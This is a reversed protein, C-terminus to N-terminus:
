LDRLDRPKDKSWMRRGHPIRVTTSFRFAEPAIWKRRERDRRHTQSLQQGGVVHAGNGLHFLFAFLSLSLFHKYYSRSLKHTYGLKKTSQGRTMELEDFTMMEHSLIYFCCSRLINKTNRIRSIKKEIEVKEEYKRSEVTRRRTTM